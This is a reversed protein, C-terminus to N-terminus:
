RFDNPLELSIPYAQANDTIRRTITVTKVIMCIFSEFLAFSQSSYTGSILATGCTRRRCAPPVPIFFIFFCKADRIAMNAASETKANEKKYGM